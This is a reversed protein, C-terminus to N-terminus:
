GDGDGERRQDRATLLERLAKDDLAAKLLDDETRSLHLALDTTADIQKGILWWLVGNGLLLLAMVLSGAAETTM